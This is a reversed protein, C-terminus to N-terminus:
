VGVGGGVDRVVKMRKTGRTKRFTRRRMLDIKPGENERSIKLYM